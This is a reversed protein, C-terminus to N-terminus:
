DDQEIVLDKVKYKETLKDVSLIQRDRLLRSVDRLYTYNEPIFFKYSSINLADSLTVWATSQIEEVDTHPLDRKEPDNFEAPSAAKSNPLDNPPNVPIM